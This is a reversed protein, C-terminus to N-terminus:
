EPQLCVTWIAPTSVMHSNCVIVIVFVQGYWLVKCIYVNVHHYSCYLYVWLSHPIWWGVLTWCATHVESWPLSAVYLTCCFSKSLSSRWLTWSATARVFYGILPSVLALCLPAMAVVFGTIYTPVHHKQAQLLFVHLQVFDMQLFCMKLRFCSTTIYLVLFVFQQKM